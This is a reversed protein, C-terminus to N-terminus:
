STSGSTRCSFSTPSSSSASLLESVACSPSRLLKALKRSFSFHNLLFLRPLGFWVQALVGFLVTGAAGVLIVITCALGALEDSYGVSCHHCDFSINGYTRRCHRRVFISVKRMDSNSFNIFCFRCMIQEMKTALCSIFAM